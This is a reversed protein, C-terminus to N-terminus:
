DEQSDELIEPPSFYKFGGLFIFSVKISVGPVKWKKV